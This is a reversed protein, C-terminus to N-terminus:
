RNSKIKFIKDCVIKLFEETTKKLRVERIVKLYIEKLKKTVYEWDDNNFQFKFILYYGKLFKYFERRTIKMNKFMSILEFFFIQSIRYFEKKETKFSFGRINEVEKKEILNEMHNLM